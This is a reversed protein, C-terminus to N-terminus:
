VFVTNRPKPLPAPAHPKKQLLAKLQKDSPLGPRAAKIADVVAIREPETLGRGVLRAAQGIVEQEAPTLFHGASSYQFTSM